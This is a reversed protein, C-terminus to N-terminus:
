CCITRSRRSIALAQGYIYGLAIVSDVLAVATGVVGLYGLAGFALLM